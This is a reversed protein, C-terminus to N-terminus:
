LQFCVYSYHSIFHCSSIFEINTIYLIPFFICTNRRHICILKKDHKLLVQLYYNTIHPRNYLNGYYNSSANVNLTSAQKSEWLSPSDFCSNIEWEENRQFNVKSQQIQKIWPASLGHELKFRFVLWFKMDKYYVFDTSFNNLLGDFSTPHSSYHVLKQVLLNILRQFLRKKKKKTLKTIYSIHRNDMLWYLRIQSNVFYPLFFYGKIIKALWKFWFFKSIQCNKLVKRWNKAIRKLNGNFKWGFNEYVKVVNHFKVGFFIAVKFPNSTKFNNRM